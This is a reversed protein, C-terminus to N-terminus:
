RPRETWPSVHVCTTVFWLGVQRARLTLCLPFYYTPRRRETWTRPKNRNGKEKKRETGTKLFSMKFAQCAMPQKCSFLIDLPVLFLRGSANQM